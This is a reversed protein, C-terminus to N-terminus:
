HAALVWGRSRGKGVERKRRVGDDGDQDERGPFLLLCFGRSLSRLADPSTTSLEGLRAPLTKRKTNTKLLIVLVESGYFADAAHNILQIMLEKIFLSPIERALSEVGASPTGLCLQVAGLPSAM